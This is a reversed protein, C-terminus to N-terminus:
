TYSVILRSRLIFSSKVSAILVFAPEHGTLSAGFYASSAERLDSMIQNPCVFSADRRHWHRRSVSVPTGANSHMIARFLCVFASTSASVPTCGSGHLCDRDGDTYCPHHCHHGTSLCARPFRIVPQYVHHNFHTFFHLVPHSNHSPSSCEVM